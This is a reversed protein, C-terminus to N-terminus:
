EQEVFTDGTLSTSQAAPEQRKPRIRLAVAVDNEAQKRLSPITLPAPNQVRAHVAAEFALLDNRELGSRYDHAREPLGAEFKETVERNRKVWEVVM